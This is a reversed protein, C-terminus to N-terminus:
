GHLPEGVILAPEPRRGPPDPRSSDAAQTTPTWRGTTAAPNGARHTTGGLAPAVTVRQFAPESAGASEPPSGTKQGRAVM